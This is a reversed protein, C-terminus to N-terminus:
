NGLLEHAGPLGSAPFVLHEKETQSEDPFALAFIKFLRKPHSLNMM